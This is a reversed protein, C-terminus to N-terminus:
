LYYKLELGWDESYEFLANPTAAKSKSTDSSQTSLDESMIERNRRHLHHVLVTQVQLPGTEPAAEQNKFM